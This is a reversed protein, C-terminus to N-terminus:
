DAPCFYILSVINESIPIDANERLVEKGLTRVIARPITRTATTFNRGPQGVWDQVNFGSNPGIIPDVVLSKLRLPVLM